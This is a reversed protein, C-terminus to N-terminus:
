CICTKPDCAYLQGRGRAKLRNDDVNVFVSCDKRYYCNHKDRGPNAEGVTEANEGGITKDGGSFVTGGGGGQNSMSGYGDITDGQCVMRGETQYNVVEVLLISM